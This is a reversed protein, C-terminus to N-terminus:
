RSSILEKGHLRNDTKNESKSNRVFRYRLISDIGNRYTGFPYLIMNFENKLSKISDYYKFFCESRVHRTSRTLMAHGISICFLLIHGKYYNQTYLLSTKYRYNRYERSQITTYPEYIGYFEHQSFGKPGLLNGM